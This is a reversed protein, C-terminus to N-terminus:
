NKNLFLMMDVNQPKLSNRKHSIVEGAVSFLRESPVSTALTCLYKSAVKAISPYIHKNDNWWELPDAKRQILPAKLYRDMETHVLIAPTQQTTMDVVQQDFFQWIGTDGTNDIVTETQDTTTPPQYLVIAENVVTRTAKEVASRSTFPVKKFRPDLLTPLAILHVEEMGAPFRFAMQRTLNVSLTTKNSSTFRQLARSIPIIKSATLNKEASMETTVAEFPKLVSVAEKILSNSESQILLNNKDLLCLTTKIAEEQELYRNLM